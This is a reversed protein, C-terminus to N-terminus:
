CIKMGQSVTFDLGYHTHHLFNFHIMQIESFCICCLDIASFVLFESFVVSFLTKKTSPTRQNGRHNPNPIPIPNLNHDPNHM